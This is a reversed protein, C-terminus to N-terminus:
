AILKAHLRDALDSSVEDTVEPSVKVAGVRRRKKACMFQRAVEWQEEECLEELPAEEMEESESEGGDKPLELQVRKQAALGMIRVEELARLFEPDGMTVRLIKKEPTEIDNPDVPDWVSPTPVLGSVYEIVGEPIHYATERHVHGFGGGKRWRHPYVVGPAWPKNRVLGPCARRDCFVGQLEEVHQSGYFRTPKQYGCDEFRCYNVDVFQLGQIVERSPFRGNRPTELWLREPKFYCIIELTKRVVEDAKEMEPARKTLAQSYETCPPCAVILDFYGRPYQRRYNWELVDTCITPNRKVDNDLTVVEYKAASKRGCFMDLARPKRPAEEEDESMGDSQTAEPEAEEDTSQSEKRTPIRNVFIPEQPLRANARQQMNSRVGGVWIPVKDPTVRFGHDRPIVQVDREGMWRYSLIMDEDIVAEYLTTPMQLMKKARTGEVVGQVHITLDVERDGGVVPDNNAAVLDLPNTAERFAHQPLLGKRILNVEAGTDLLAKAQWGGEEEDEMHLTVEIRLHSELEGTPPRNRRGNGCIKVGGRLHALPRQAEPNPLKESEDGEAIIQEEGCPPPDKREELQVGSGAETALAPPLVLIRAKELSAAARESKGSRMEGEAPLLAPSSPHDTGEARPLETQTGLEVGTVIEDTTTAKEACVPKALNPVMPKGGRYGHSWMVREIKSMAELLEELGKGGNGGSTKCARNDLVWVVTRWSKVQPLIAKRYGGYFLKVRPPFQVRQHPISTLVSWWSEKDWEPTCLALKCPENTLKEAVRGIMGFPPNAWLLAESGEHLAGWNFSFADMEKTIFLEAAASWPEAFLDVRIPLHGVGLQDLAWQRKQPDLTYEGWNGWVRNVHQKPDGTHVRLVEGKDGESPESGMDHDHISVPVDHGIEEVVQTDGSYVVEAQQFVPTKETNVSQVFKPKPEEEGVVLSVVRPTCEGGSAVVSCQPPGPDGSSPLAGGEPLSM